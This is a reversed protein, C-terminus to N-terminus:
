SGPYQTLGVYEFYNVQDPGIRGVGLRQAGIADAVLECRNDFSRYGPSLAFWITHPGALDLVRRAFETPDTAAIVKRYDIWNVFDPSTLRPYTVQKLGPVGRLQRSLAPGIQDPCDLVVDGPKAEARIVQAVEVSETRQDSAVRLGGAFGVGILVVLVGVRVPDSVLTDLGLAILVLVLPVMVATYRPDFAAGAVDSAVLALLLTAYAALAIWRSRRQTRLDLDVHRRDVAAGFLGLAILLVVLYRLVEAEAHVPVQVGGLAEFHIAFGSWPLIPDGWPTGTHQAQFRLTPLWPAYLVGGVALAAFVRWSARRVEPDTARLARVLIMLGVVAVLYLSWNHTYLLAATVVTVLGLRPWTPRELANWVALFGWAVLFMVLSYMRTETAYRFAFPASAAVLLLIWALRRGGVRRGILWYAPLTAASLVGSLARVAVNGDGFLAIWGHLLVYYLPPAGDRKLAAHLHSLPLKAVNVSLAEDLWLESRTVFRLVLGVVLVAGVAVVTLIRTWSRGPAVRDQVETDV